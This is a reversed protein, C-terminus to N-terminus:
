SETNRATEDIEKSLWDNRVQTSEESLKRFDKGTNDPLWRVHKDLSEHNRKSENIELNHLLEANSVANDIEESPWDKHIHTSKDCREM